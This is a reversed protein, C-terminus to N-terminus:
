GRKRSGATRKEPPSAEATAPEAEEVVPALLGYRTADELAIPSGPTAFLYAAEADGEEVVRTKDATLFLRRDAVLESM